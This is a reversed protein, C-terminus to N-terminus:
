LATYLRQLANYDNVVSLPIVGETEQTIESHTSNIQLLLICQLSNRKKFEVHVTTVNVPFILEYLM